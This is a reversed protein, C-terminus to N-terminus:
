VVGVAECLSSGDWMFYFPAPEDHLVHRGLCM